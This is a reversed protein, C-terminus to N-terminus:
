RCFHFRHLENWLRLRRAPTQTSSRLSLHPILAANASSQFINLKQLTRTPISLVALHKMSFNCQIHIYINIFHPPPGQKNRGHFRLAAARNPLLPDAPNGHNKKELTRRWSSGGTVDGVKNARRVNLSTKTEGTNGQRESTAHHFVPALRTSVCAAPAPILVEALPPPPGKSTSCM